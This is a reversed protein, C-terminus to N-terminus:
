PPAQHYEEQHQQDTHAAPTLVLEPRLVARALADPTAQPPGQVLEPVNFTHICSDYFDPDEQPLVFPKSFRGTQDVYAFHPRAFLGDARKSSFVLWRGNSSWCHWTDALDSNIELKRTKMTTLDLLYLDSSPQYIPFNGYKALCFVLWRGDPSVRPQAASLGTEAAAVLTEPKGWSNQELDFSVRVLDYRVQRFREQRLKPASCFYLYRGDPSWSPWTELRDPQAIAPPTVVANSTVWYVALDSEADFVDRTEGITHFFLSLKNASFAMLRGSPHWSMYGATKNVRAVKNSSALLMPQPGKQGRIHLAFTDPRHNLFTHCNLCGNNFSRNELVPTQRFGELDRQYIGMEAYFNYLPRLLRYVLTKDIPDPAIRNTVSQFRQWAGNSDRVSVDFFVNGNKNADLLGKWQRIPVQIQPNRGAVSIPQGHQGHLTVRYANGPEEIVFNPPAINPPFVTDVYDPRLRPLRAGDNKESTGPNDAACNVPSPFLLFLCMLEARGLRLRISRRPLSTLLLSLAGDRRASRLSKTAWPHPSIPILPLLAQLCLDRVIRYDAIQACTKWCQVMAMALYRAMARLTTRRAHVHTGIWDM